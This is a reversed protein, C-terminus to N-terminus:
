TLNRFSTEKEARSALALGGGCVSGAGGGGVGGEVGSGAVGGGAIGGAGGFQCGGPPGIIQIKGISTLNHLAQERSYRLRNKRILLLNIYSM